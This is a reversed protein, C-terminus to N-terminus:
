FIDVKFTAVGGRGNVEAEVEGKLDEVCSLFKKASPYWEFSISETIKPQDM